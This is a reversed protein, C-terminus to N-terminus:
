AHQLRESIASSGSQMRRHENDSETKDANILVSFIHMMKAERKAEWMNNNSNENAENDCITKPLYLTKM